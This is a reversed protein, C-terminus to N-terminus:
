RRKAKARLWGIKFGLWIILAPLGVCSIVLAILLLKM